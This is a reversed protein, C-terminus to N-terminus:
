KKVKKRNPFFRTKGTEPDVILIGNSLKHVNCNGITGILPANVTTKRIGM